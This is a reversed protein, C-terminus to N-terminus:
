SLFDSFDRNKKSGGTPLRVGLKEACTKGTKLIKGVSNKIVVQNKGRGGCFDCFFEGTSFKVFELKGTKRIKEVIDNNKTEM